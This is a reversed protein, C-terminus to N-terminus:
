MRHYFLFFVKNIEEEKRGRMESREEREKERGERRRRQGKKGKRGEKRNPPISGLAKYM